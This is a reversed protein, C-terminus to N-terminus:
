KGYLKTLLASNVTAVTLGLKKLLIQLEANYEIDDEIQWYANNWSTDNKLKFYKLRKILRYEIDYCNENRCKHEKIDHVSFHVGPNEYCSLMCEKNQWRATELVVDLNLRQLVEKDHRSMHTVVEKRTRSKFKGCVTCVYLPIKKRRTKEEGRSKYTNTWWRVVSLNTRMFTQLPDRMCARKHNDFNKDHFFQKCTPCKRDMGLKSQRNPELNFYTLHNILYRDCRGTKMALQLNNILWTRYKPRDKILGCHILDVKAGISETSEILPYVKM